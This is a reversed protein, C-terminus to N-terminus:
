NEQNHLTLEDYYMSGNEVRYQNQFRSIIMKILTKM